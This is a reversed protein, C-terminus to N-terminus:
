GGHKYMQLEPFLERQASAIVNLDVPQTHNLVNDYDTGGSLIYLM